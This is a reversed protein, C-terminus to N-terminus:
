SVKEWACAGRYRMDVGAKRAECLNQYTKGDAGCVPDHLPACPAATTITADFFSDDMIANGTITWGSRHVQLAGPKVAAFAIATILVIGIVGALPVKVRHFAEKM